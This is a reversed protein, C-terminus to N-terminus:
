WTSSNNRAANPVGRTASRDTLGIGMPSELESREAGQRWSSAGLSYCICGSLTCAAPGQVAPELELQVYRGRGPTQACRVSQGAGGGFSRAMCQATSRRAPQCLAAAARCVALAAHLAVLWVGACCLPEVPRRARGGASGCHSVACRTNCQVEATRARRVRGPVSAGSAGVAGRRSAKERLAVHMPLEYDCADHAAASELTPELTMSRGGQGQTASKVGFDSSSQFQYDARPTLLRGRQPTRQDQRRM